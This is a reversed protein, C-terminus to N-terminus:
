SPLCAGSHSVGPEQVERLPGPPISLPSATDSRDRPSPERAAYCIAQLCLGELPLVRAGFLSLLTQSLNYLFTRELSMGTKTSLSGAVPWGGRALPRRPLLLLSQSSCPSGWMSSGVLHGAEQTAVLHRSCLASGRLELQMWGRPPLHGCSPRM